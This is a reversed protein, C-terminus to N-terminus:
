GEPDNVSAGLSDRMAALAPLLNSVNRNYSVMRSIPLNFQSPLSSFLVRESLKRRWHRLIVSQPVFQLWFLRNTCCFRKRKKSYGWSAYDPHAGEASGTLLCRDIFFYNGKYVDLVDKSDLPSFLRKYLRHQELAFSKGCLRLISKM